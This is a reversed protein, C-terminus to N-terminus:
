FLFILSTPCFFWLPFYQLPLSATRTRLGTRNLWSGTHRRTWYLWVGFSTFNAFSNSFRAFWVCLDDIVSPKAGAESLIFLCNVIWEYQMLFGLVNYVEDVVFVVSFNWLFFVFKSNKFSVHQTPSSFTAFSFHLTIHKM